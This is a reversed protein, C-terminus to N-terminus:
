KLIFSLGVEFGFINYGKNPQSFEFNSVHGVNTGFYLSSTKTTKFNIGFSGNEIFTFGKALRETRVDIYSLGLGVTAVIEIISIIKKKVSVGFEVSYLSMNKLQTYKNRKEIYNQETDLVFHKNLLQHRLTQIQPQVILDFDLTKWDGLKYFLQGKFVSTTYYYDPDKFITNATAYNYLFGVKYPKYINRKKEKQSFASVTFSLFIILSLKKM